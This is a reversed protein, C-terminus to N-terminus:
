ECIAVVQQSRRQALDQSKSVPKPQCSLWCHVYWLESFPEYHPDRIVTFLYGWDSLVKMLASFNEASHVEILLWPRYTRITREAGQLCQLEAGETDCKIFDVPGSIDLDDVPLCPLEIQGIRHGTNIGEDQFYASLHVSSEFRSFTINTAHSWAAMKHITVNEPLGRQLDRLVDANPEVAHVHEFHPALAKTWTGRNAGIDIFIRGSKPIWPLLWWEDLSVNSPLVYSARGDIHFDSDIVRICCDSAAVPTLRNAQVCEIMTAQHRILRIEKGTLRACSGNVPRSQIEMTVADVDTELTSVFSQLRIAVDEPVIDGQDLFLVWEASTQKMAIPLWESVCLVTADVNVVCAGYENAITATRDSSALDVLITQQVYPVIQALTAALQREANHAALCLAIRPSKIADNSHANDVCAPRAPQIQTGIAKRSRTALSQLRNVMLDATHTWTFRSAVLHSAARGRRSSEQRDDFAIRLARRLDGTEMELWVPPGCLPGVGLAEAKHTPVAWGTDTTVFDDTPGGASAIVPVGCAMAELAPLCFGEGRYPAVLCHCAAYLGAMQCHSLPQDLYIIEPSNPSEQAQRIMAESTSGSYFTNNGQDKILLCVDENSHFEELYAKLLIDIGKREITGGVFM